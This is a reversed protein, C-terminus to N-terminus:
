PSSQLAPAGPPGASVTYLGENRALASVPVFVFGRKQADPIWQRLAKITPEKPHGIAIAYGQRLAVAELHRLAAAVFAEDARHDLFVDRGAHLLGAQAAMDEAVSSPITKSDVFILGRSKLVKMVTKMAARDQTARSGMHNNVGDYGKFSALAQELAQTIEQASMDTRIAMPGPNVGASVPQMPMHLFLEHGRSAARATIEPLAPAYPLFSLTVPAPLEIAQASHVRDMGMDDIMIAIRAGKGAPPRAPKTKVPAKVKQAAAAPDSSLAAQSSPSAEPITEEEMFHFDSGPMTENWPTQHAAADFFDPDHQGAAGSSPAYSTYQADASEEISATVVAVPGPPMPGFSPFETQFGMKWLGMLSIAVLLFLSKNM